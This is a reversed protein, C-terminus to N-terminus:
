YHRVIGHLLDGIREIAVRTSIDATRGSPAALAISWARKGDFWQSKGEESPFLTVSRTRTATAIHSTGTDHTLFVACRKILAATQM